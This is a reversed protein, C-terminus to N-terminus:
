ASLQSSIASLQREQGGGVFNVVEVVDGENLRYDALEARRLVKLNVEVAVRGPVIGMEELLQLVTEKGTEYDEGNVKLNM